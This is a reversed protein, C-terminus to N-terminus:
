PLNLRHAVALTKEQLQRVTAAQEAAVVSLQRHVKTDTQVEAVALL